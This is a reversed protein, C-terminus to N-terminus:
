DAELLLIIADDSDLAVLHALAKIHGTRTGANGSGIIGLHITQEAVILGNGDYDTLDDFRIREHLVSSSGSTTFENKTELSRNWLLGDDSLVISATESDKTLQMNLTNEQDDEVDPAKLDSVMAMLEVAQLTGRGLVPAIPLTIAVETFAGASSEVVSRRIIFPKETIRRVM